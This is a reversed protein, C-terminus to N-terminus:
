SVVTGQAPSIAADVKKHWRTGYLGGLTSMMLVVALAVLASITATVGIPVASDTFWTPLVVSPASVQATAGTTSGVVTALAGLAATLVVFLVGVLFGNRGGDYRAMRGAVWGGFFLSLVLVVLGATLAGWGLTEGAAPGTTYGITTVSAVVASLFAAFGLAALTGALVAPIDMGGFRSRAEQSTLGAVQPAPPASRYATTGGESTSTTAAAYEPTRTTDDARTSPAGERADDHRVSEAPVGDSQSSRAADSDYQSARAADSGGRSAGFMDRMRM